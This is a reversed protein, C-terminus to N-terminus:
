GGKFVIGSNTSLQRAAQELFVVLQKQEEDSVESIYQQYKPLYSDLTGKLDDSKTKLYHGLMMGGLTALVVQPCLGGALLELVKVSGVASRLVILSMVIVYACFIGKSQKGIKQSLIELSTKPNKDKLEQMIELIGVLNQQWEQEMSVPVVIMRSRGVSPLRQYQARLFGGRTLDRIMDYATWKSVELRKAVDEYHVPQGTERYLEEVAALFERKRETLEM